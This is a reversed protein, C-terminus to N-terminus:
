GECRLKQQQQYSNTDTATHRSGLGLFQAPTKCIITPTLINGSFHVTIKNPKSEKRKGLFCTQVNIQTCTLLHTISNAWTLTTFAYPQTSTHRIALSMASFPPSHGVERGRRSLREKLFFNQRHRKLLLSPPGGSGPQVMQLLSFDRAAAPIQVPIDQHDM